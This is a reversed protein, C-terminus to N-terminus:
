QCHKHSRGVRYSVVGLLALGIAWLLLEGLRVSEDMVPLRGKKNVPYGYDIKQVVGASNTQWIPFTTSPTLPGFYIFALLALASCILCFPKM